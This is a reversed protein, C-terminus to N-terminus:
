PLLTNYKQPPAIENSSSFFYADLIEKAVPAGTYGEWGKELVVAIAIEPDDAPAYCIFVSNIGEPTQPSGTKSAVDIPYNSFTGRATSRFLM